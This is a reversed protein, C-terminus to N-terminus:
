PSLQPMAVTRDDALTKRNILQGNYMQIRCISNGGFQEFMQIITHMM